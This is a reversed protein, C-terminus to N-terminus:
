GARQKSRLDTLSENIQFLVIGGECMIRLLVLTGLTYLPPLMAEWNMRTVIRPLPPVISSAVPASQRESVNGWDVSGRETQRSGSRQESQGYRDAPGSRDMILFVHLFSSLVALLVANVFFVRILWPTLMRRFMLVDIAWEAFTMRKAVRLRKRQMHALIAPDVGGGHEHENSM